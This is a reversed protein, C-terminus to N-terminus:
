VSFWDENGGKKVVVRGFDDDLVFWEGLLLDYIPEDVPSQWSKLKWGYHLAMAAFAPDSEIRDNLVSCLVVINSPVDRLRSGGMGRNVRHNPALAVTEGCHLCRGLDRELFKRWRVSNMM